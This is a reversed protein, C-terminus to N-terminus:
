ESTRRVSVYHTRYNETHFRPHSITRADSGFCRAATEPTYQGATILIASKILGRATVGRRRLEQAVATADMRNRRTDAGVEGGDGTQGDM